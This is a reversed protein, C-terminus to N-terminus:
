PPQGAKEHQSLVQAAERHGGAAFPEGIERPHELVFEGAASQPLPQQLQHSQV